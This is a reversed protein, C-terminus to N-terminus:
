DEEIPPTYKPKVEDIYTSCVLEGDIIEYTNIVYGNAKLYALVFDVDDVPVTFPVFIKGKLAEEVISIIISQIIRFRRAKIQLANLIGLESASIM